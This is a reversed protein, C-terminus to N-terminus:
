RRWWGKQKRGGAEAEVEPEDAAATHLQSIVLHSRAANLAMIFEDYSQYREAPDKALTRLIAENTAESVAPNVLNPATPETHVHASVVDEASSAEFPVHGTLAHYLTGGLSYLDSSWTVVERRLREPAVYYPTGFIDDAQEAEETATRALGFDILKPVGERNFLINLPKIDQHLLRKQLACDLASAVQIGVDLVLLENVTQEAVIRSDLSGNDALEMVLFMQGDHEGFHYIHIINTHNLGACARAERYFGDLAEPEQAIERKMLKIAVDRELVTDHAYYVTGMGGSAVIGRLEFHQMMVPLMLPHECKTCPVTEFPGLEGSIFSKSKCAGCTVM